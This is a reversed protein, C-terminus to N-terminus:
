EGGLGRKVAYLAAQRRDRLHLKQYIDAVRRRLTRLSLHLRDAMEQDTRGEGIGALVRRDIDNLTAGPLSQLHDLMMEALHSPVTLNGENVSRILQGIQSPLRDKMAYGSAGALLAEYLDHPEDSVTLIVIKTTPSLAKLRRTAEIGNTRPMFIDIVVVDPYLTLTLREVEEANCAIGVVNLDLCEANLIMALGAAFTPQDDCM